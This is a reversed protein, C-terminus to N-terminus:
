RSLNGSDELKLVVIGAQWFHSVSGFVTMNASDLSGCPPRFLLWM